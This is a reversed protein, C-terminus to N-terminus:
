PMKGELLASVAEHMEAVHEKTFGEHVHRIIGASDIIYVVPISQIDYKAKMESTTRVLSDGPPGSTPDALMPYTIKLKAYFPKVVVSGKQDLAIGFLALGGREREGAGFEEHLAQMHPMSARCPVCWTAWFDILVAGPYSKRVVRAGEPGSETLLVLRGEDVTVTRVTGDVNKLSFPVLKDGEKLVASAHPVAALLLIAAAGARFLIKLARM